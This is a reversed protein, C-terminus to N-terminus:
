DQDKMRDIKKLLLRGLDTIGYGVVKMTGTKEDFEPLEGRKPKKYRYKLLGINVLHIRHTHYFTNKDQELQSSGMFIVPEELLDNHTDFFETVEPDEEGMHRTYSYSILIIVEADNLEGLLALLRKSEIYELEESTISNKLISAIYDVREPSLARTTQVLADEFLDVTEPEKIKQQLLAESIEEFKKELCEALEEIRDIRQNPITAGIIESFLPGAIPIAGAAGKFLITLIDERKIVESM